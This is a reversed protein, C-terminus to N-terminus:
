EEAAVVLEAIDAPLASDLTVRQGNRPHLFSMKVCHLAHRALLPAGGYLTDGLLPHGIHAMHVRIQHTRGTLTVVQLVTYNEARLLVRYRTVSPAGDPRVARTIISTESRAIPADVEGEDDEFAGACVAIYVKDANKALLPAAYRTKAALVLGSTSKDLRNIPRFVPEDGRNRAHAAYVNALTADPQNRTPHTAMGAPKDFVIVDDDEYAIPVDAAYPSLGTDGQPLHVTVRQGKRLVQNTKARVGDVMLGDELYKVTHLLSASLSCGGRLFVRLKKQDYEEPVIFRYTM